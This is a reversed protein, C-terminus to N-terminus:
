NNYYSPFISVLGFFAQAGISTKMETTRPSKTMYAKQMELSDANRWSMRLAVM